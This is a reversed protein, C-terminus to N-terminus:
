VSLRIIRRWRKSHKLLVNLYNRWLNHEQHLIRNYRRNRQQDMKAFPAVGDFAIFVTKSPRILEIYESIKDITGRIIRDELVQTDALLEPHDMELQRFVDYIISNCDMYLHQFAVRDSRLMYLNRIINSYNKIIYSFYSPIGM